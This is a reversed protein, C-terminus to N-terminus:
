KTSKDCAKRQYSLSEDYCKAVDIYTFQWRDGYHRWFYVSLDNSCTVFCQQDNNRSAQMWRLGTVSEFHGYQYGLIAQEPTLVTRDIVVFSSDTYKVMIFRLNATTQIDSM